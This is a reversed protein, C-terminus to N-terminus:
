EDRWVTGGVLDAHHQAAQLTAFRHEREVRRRSKKAYETWRVLWPRDDDVFPSPRFFQGDDPHEDYTEPM